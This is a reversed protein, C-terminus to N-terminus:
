FISRLFNFEWMLMQRGCADREFHPEKAGVPQCVPEEFLPFLCSRAAMTIIYSYSIVHESYPRFLVRARRKWGHRLLAPCALSRWEWWINLRSAINACPHGGKWTEVWVAMVINMILPRISLSLSLVCWGLCVAPRGGDQDCHHHVLHPLM